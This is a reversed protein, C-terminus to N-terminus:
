KDQFNFIKSPEKEIEAYVKHWRGRILNVSWLSKKKLRMVKYSKNWMLDLSYGSTLFNHNVVEHLQKEKKTKPYNIITQFSKYKKLQLTGLSSPLNISYGSMLYKILEELIVNVIEKWEQYKLSYEHECNVKSIPIYPLPIINKKILNLDWCPYKYEQYLETLTIRKKKM